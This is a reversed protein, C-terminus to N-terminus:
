LIVELLLLRHPVVVFSFTKLSTTFVRIGYLRCTLQILYTLNITTSTAWHYLIWRGICSVHTQDGPRSSVRPFSIAIWELIRTQSIGHVSSGPLSCDMTARFLWFRSRSSSLLLLRVHTSSFFSIQVSKCLKPFHLTNLAKYINSNIMYWRVLLM